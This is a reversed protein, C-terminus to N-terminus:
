SRSIFKMYSIFMGEHLKIYERLRLTHKNISIKLIRNDFVLNVKLENEAYINDSAYENCWLTIQTSFM